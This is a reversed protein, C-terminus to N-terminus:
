LRSILYEELLAKDDESMLTKLFEIAEPLTELNKFYPDNLYDFIMDYDLQFDKSAASAVDFRNFGLSIFILSHRASEPINSVNIAEENVLKIVNELIKIIEQKNFAFTSENKSSIENMENMLAQIMELKTEPTKCTMAKNIVAQFYFSPDSKLLDIYLDEPVNYVYSQIFISLRTNYQFENIHRPSMSRLAAYFEEMKGSGKVYNVLNEAGEKVIKESYIFSMQKPCDIFADIVKEIPANMIANRFEGYAGKFHDFLVFDKDYVKENM